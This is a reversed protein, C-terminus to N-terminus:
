LHSPSVRGLRNVMLKIPKSTLNGIIFYGNIASHSLDTAFRLYRNSQFGRWTIHENGVNWHWERLQKVGSKYQHEPNDVFLLMGRSWDNEGPLSTLLLSEGTLLSQTKAFYIANKIDIAIIDQQNKKYLLPTFPLAFLFVISLISLSVLLEILNM